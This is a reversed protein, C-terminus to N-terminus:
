EETLPLSGATVQSIMNKIILQNVIWFNRRVRVVKKLKLHKKIWLNFPQPRIVILTLISSWFIWKKTIQNNSFKINDKQFKKNFSPIIKNMQFQVKAKVNVKGQYKTIMKSEQIMNMIRKMMMLMFEQLVQKISRRYKNLWNLVLSEKNKLLLNKMQWILPSMSLEKVHEILTKVRQALLMRYKMLYEQDKNLNNKIRVWCIVKMKVQQTISLM